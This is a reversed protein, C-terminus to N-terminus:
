CIDSNNLLVQDAQFMRSSTTSHYSFYYSYFCFLFFFIFVKLLEEAPPRLVPDVQFCLNLFDRFEPSHRKPKSLNPAGVTVTLFLAKLSKFERYPPHGEAMEYALAGVSWIDVKHDYSLTKIMEPACWFKSGAMGKRKTETCLGM